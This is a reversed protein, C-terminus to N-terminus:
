RDIIRQSVLTQIDFITETKGQGARGGVLMLIRPQEGDSPSEGQVYLCFREITVEPATMALFSNGAGGIRREIQGGNFRYEVARGDVDTFEMSSAGGDACSSGPGPNYETGVRLARSMSDIAFSVNSMVAEVSQAKRNAEIVSVLAGTAIVMVVSFIFLAVLMEILTFGGTM